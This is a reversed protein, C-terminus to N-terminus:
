IVVKTWKRGSIWCRVIIKLPRDLVIKLNGTKNLQKFFSVVLKSKYSLASNYNKSYLDSVFTGIVPIHNSRGVLRTVIESRTLYAVMIDPQEAKVIKKLQKYAQRLGYKKQIGVSYVTIGKDIFRPKLLEGKYLHCVVPKINKFRTTNSLLSQEAGGMELTDIVFLVKRNKNLDM